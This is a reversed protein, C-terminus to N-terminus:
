KAPAIGTARAIETKIEARVAEAIMQRLTQVDVGPEAKAPAVVHFGEEAAQDTGGAGPKPVLALPADVRVVDAAIGITGTPTLIRLEPATKATISWDIRSAEKFPVGDVFIRTSQPTPGGIVQIHAPPLFLIGAARFAAVADLLGNRGATVDALVLAVVEDPLDRLPDFTPPAERIHPAPTKTPPGFGEPLGRAYGADLDWMTLTGSSSIAGGAAVRLDDKHEDVWDQVKERDWGDDKPFALAQIVAGGDPDSKLPGGIAFVRPKDEKLAWRRLRVFDDPDRVRYRFENETEEIGPRAKGREDVLEPTWAGGLSRHWEVFEPFTTAWAGPEPRYPGFKRLDAFGDTGNLLRAFEAREGDEEELHAKPGPRVAQPDAPVPCISWELMDSKIWHWGTWRGDDDTLPEVEIPSWSVSAARLFGGDVLTRIQAAQETPAWRLRGTMRRSTLHLRSTLGIPLGFFDHVYNVIPNRLYNSVDLGDLELVGMDRKKGSTSIVFEHEAEGDDAKVARAELAFPASLMTRVARADPSPDRWDLIYPKPKTRPPM